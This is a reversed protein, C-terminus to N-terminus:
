KTTWKLIVLPMGLPEAAFFRGAICSSCFVHTRDRPQSSERSSSIGVCELIRAQSVGPVSSGPLSSDMPDWLTPCSQARARARARVRMCARACVCVCVCVCVCGSYFSWNSKLSSIALVDILLGTSKVPKETRHKMGHYLIRLKQKEWENKLILEKVQNLCLLKSIM